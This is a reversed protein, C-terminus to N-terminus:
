RRNLMTNVILMTYMYAIDSEADPLITGKENPVSWKKEERNKLGAFKEGLVKIQM